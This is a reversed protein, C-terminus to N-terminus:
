TQTEEGVGLLNQMDAANKAAQGGFCNNMFVYVIDTHGELDHIRPVWEKLETDTYLYDYRKKSDGQWWTQYNRGHFRVYGVPSTAISIPPMLTRFHPEDVACWGIQHRRLFDYVEDKAWQRNRFEVVLPYNSFHDCLSALYQRNGPTNHFSNPFQALVCGFKDAEILPQLSEIFTRFDDENDSGPEHTLTRYAKVTFRFGDPVKGAMAFFTAPNLLRYYTSNVELCDFRQGYYALWDKQKITEPYFAGKWDDFKFGSTGVRIM